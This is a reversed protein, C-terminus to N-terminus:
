IEDARSCVMRIVEPSVPRPQVDDDQSDAVQEAAPEGLGPAPLGVVLLGSGAPCCPPPTTVCRRPGPPETSSTRPRAPGALAAVTPAPTFPYGSGYVLQSSPVLSLLAPLARCHYGPWATTCRALGGLVDPPAQGNPPPSIVPAFRAVRDVMVPLAAGAHPVVWRIGPYRGLAGNLALNVVARTTGFLFEVMPQPRGFSTQEWGCPSTPHIAAVAGRDHLAAMVPELRPGGLYVDDYHHAAVAADGDENVARAV